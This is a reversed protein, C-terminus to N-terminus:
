RRARPSRPPAHDAPYPPAHERRHGHGDQDPQNQVLRARAGPKAGGGPPIHKIGDDVKREIHVALSLVLPLAFRDVVVQQTIVLQKVGVVLVIAQGVQGGQVGVRGLPRHRHLVVQHRQEGKALLSGLRGVPGAVDRGSRHERKPM